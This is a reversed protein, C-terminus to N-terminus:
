FPLFYLKVCISCCWCMIENFDSFIWINMVLFVFVKWITINNSVSTPFIPAFTIKLSLCFCSGLNSVLGFRFSSTVIHSKTLDAFLVEGTKPGLLLSNWMRCRCCPRAFVFQAFLPWVICKMLFHNQGVWSTLCWGSGVIVICNSFM